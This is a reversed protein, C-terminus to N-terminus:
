APSADDVIVKRYLLYVYSASWIFSVVGYVMLVIPVIPIMGVFSWVNTLGTVILIVPILVVAAGVTVVLFMWLIRLLIRLRRGVMMDGATKLAKLPYMGPLTVIVLAFFTSTIWYLSMVSLLGAAVWFLMAAVGSELLGSATAASYGIVALGIPILQIVLVLSVIFTAVIPSGANYLGDRMTVKHGALVNRLLWVTSLWILLGLLVIYIQQSETPAQNLGSSGISFFLLAAQGIQGINGQFIESGTKQLTSSLTSYTDQSGIGILVSTVVAYVISLWIFLKKHQLLTKSVTHTFSVYGPLVLSRAYDRRRTMRFSRHPRRALFGRMSRVSAKYSKRISAVIQQRRTM